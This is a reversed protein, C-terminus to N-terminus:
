RILLNKLNKVTGFDLTKTTVVDIQIYNELKEGYFIHKLIQFVTIKETQHSNLIGLNSSWFEM